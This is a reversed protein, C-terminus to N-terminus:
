AAAYSDPMGLASMRNLINCSVLFETAQNEFKRANLKEGLIAKLRFM